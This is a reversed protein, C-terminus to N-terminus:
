CGRPPQASHHRLQTAPLHRPPTPAHTTHRPPAPTRANRRRTTNHPCTRGWPPSCTTAISVGGARMASLEQNHRRLERLKKAILVRRPDYTRDGDSNDAYHGKTALDILPNRLVMAKFADPSGEALHAAVFGGYSGGYLLAGDSRADRERLATLALRCDSVDYDGARSILSRLPADGQGTSGRFNVRVAAFCEYWDAIDTSGFMSAVDVVPNRSVVAKYDDPHQASLHAVLFGGHSGGFLCVRARDASRGRPAEAAALACDRVDADGVRSPLFRVSAEGAGASGRYNVQVSAFGSIDSLGDLTGSGVRSPLFRVSAEGAGASGRYNVQVSAFGLMAFLAAELSYSNVFGSHPGGHPWVILPLKAGERETKPEFYIATFSRVPEDTDHSLHMYSVSASAVTPPAECAGGVRKWSVGGEHGRSPLKCVFLQAPTTMNSCAALVVDSKVDLITTSGTFSKNSINLIGGDPDVAYARVENQQPTSLVLRGDSSFCDLPLGQCYLGHFSEGGSTAVETQVVGVLTSVEAAGNRKVMLAHCAHHPGGAERQLWFLDGTPSLRPSRVSMGEASIKTLIGDLTLNFIYSPRNTCFILGLRRPETEWAVGYVSLGDNAFRVQGPCWSEPLGELVTISETALKCVVVVSLHKGVLQEGWDQRYLFEEGKRPASEGSGDAKPKDESKRKIYPESKKLKKEAVYVVASEDQTWDLTGFESDAYVDGHVDLSTLDICHDLKHQCWVELYQKKSEKGEKEERILAKFMGKPSVASLLENSVDVGFDSQYIVNLEKDLVYDHVYKTPKGKDLNRVSWKCSIKSGDNKLHGEVISPIKTLTKYANVITEIQSSM